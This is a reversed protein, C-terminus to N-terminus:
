GFARYRNLIANVGLPVEKVEMSTGGATAAERNENLHGVILLVAAKLDAPIVDYGATFTVKVKGNGVYGIPNHCVIRAPVSDLDVDYTAADVTVGNVRIHTVSQVPCLDLTIVRPLSDLSLRWSRSVLPIGAGTPGEIFATAAAILGEIYTDDLSHYIRLHAKAEALTLVTDQAASVAVLRTWDM